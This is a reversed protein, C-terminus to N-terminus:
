SSCNGCCSCYSFSCEVAIHAIVPTKNVDDPAIDPVVSLVVPAIKPLENVADPATDLAVIDVIPLKVPFLKTEVLAMVPVVSM